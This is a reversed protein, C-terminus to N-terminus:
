KYAWAQGPWSIYRDVEAAINHLSLATNEAMFDIAQQRTWGLYHVGTDVVLRCARWMEYSLRGFDSYPDEYFGVELGLREAYLAWGEVFATFGAFRRFPPLETLEQQLALQLHHGPVAEHLSLAEVQYLPRSKLNYTNIYYFGAKTGDGSPMTYYAATTRPAIYDPVVRIGYPTRPLTKFLSPLEGDMKKLVFAIEKQLQDATKPYFQPSTRLHKVFAALDGDFEVKRIIERMEGRIRKVEALGTAHVEEPTVDLTTYKRVRHRYFDRGNPLASAGLSGRAGPLYEDRMFKLFRRYGPVVQEAIARRGASELRARDDASVVAPFSKFPTYLLSETPDEVVHPEITQEFGELTVSPLSRGQNLGKRLVVIHEDTYRGYDRLRAIYREYDLANKLPLRKPLEPFEIHFGWRNTLPTLYSKFRYEAIEDRLLRAFIDYNIQQTRTLQGRDIREARALFREKVARRREQARETVVALKGPNRHDGVRMAFLPDETLDFEWADQILEQLATAAASKQQADAPFAAILVIISGFVGVLPFIRTPM